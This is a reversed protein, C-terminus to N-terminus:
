QLQKGSSKKNKKAKRKKGKKGNGDESDEADIAQFLSEVVSDEKESIGESDWVLYLRLAQCHWLPWSSIM